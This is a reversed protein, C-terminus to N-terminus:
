TKGYENKTTTTPCERVRKSFCVPCAVRGFRRFLNWPLAVWYTPLGDASTCDGCELCVLLEGPCDTKGAEM